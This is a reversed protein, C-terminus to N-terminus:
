ILLSGMVVNQTHLQQKEAFLENAIERPAKGSSAMIMFDDDDLIEQESKDLMDELFMSLNSNYENLVHERFDDIFKVTSKSTAKTRLKDWVPDPESKYYSTNM